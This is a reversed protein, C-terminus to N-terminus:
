ENGEEKVLKYIARGDLRGKKPPLSNYKAEAAKLSSVSAEIEDGKFVLYNTTM